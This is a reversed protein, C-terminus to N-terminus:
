GGYHHILWNFARRWAFGRVVSVFTFVATIALNDAFNTDMEWLPVIVFSWVILSIVFGSGVNLVQEILSSWKSQYGNATGTTVYRAVVPWPVVTYVMLGFLLAFLVDIGTIM